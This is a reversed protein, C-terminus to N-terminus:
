HEKLRQLIKDHISDFGGNSMVLIVDNNQAKEGVFDVITQVSQGICILKGTKNLDRELQAEDLARQSVERLRRICLLSFLSFFVM